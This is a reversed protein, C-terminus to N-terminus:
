ASPRERLQGVYILHLTIEFRLDFLLEIPDKCRYRGAEAPGIALLHASTALRGFFVFFFTSVRRWVSSFRRLMGVASCWDTSSASCTARFSIRYGRLVSRSGCSM